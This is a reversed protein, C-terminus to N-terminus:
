FKNNTIATAERLAETCRSAFSKHPLFASTVAITAEGVPNPALATLLDVKRSSIGPQSEGCFKKNNNEDGPSM